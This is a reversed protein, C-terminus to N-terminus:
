GWRGLRLSLAALAAAGATSTRLVEGGLRVVRAGAATFADLEEPAIGGEPGVVLLLTGAAPLPATALPEGAGEHLVLTAAAQGIRAVVGATSVLDAVAPFRARRSQKGAAAAVSRWRALSRMGREGRWQAISRSASWPVIEDVGLETMVEVALEGREGKALAQVVALRPEPDPVTRRADVALRVTDGAVDVVRCELLGGRGDAVLVAEGPRVRLVRAAHHGEDGALLLEDGDPLDELLFLPPSM